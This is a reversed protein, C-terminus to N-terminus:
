FQTFHVYILVIRTRRHTLIEDVLVCVSLRVSVRGNTYNDTTDTKGFFFV